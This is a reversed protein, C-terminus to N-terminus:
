KIKKGEFDMMTVNDPRGNYSFRFTTDTGSIHFVFSGPKTGFPQYPGGRDWTFILPIDYELIPDPYKPDNVLKVQVTQHSYSHTISDMGYGYDTRLGYYTGAFKAYAPLQKPKVPPTYSKKKCATALGILAAIVFFGIKSM